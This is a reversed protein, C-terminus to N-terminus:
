VYRAVYDVIMDIAFKAAVVALVEKALALRTREARHRGKPM